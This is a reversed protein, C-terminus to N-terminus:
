KGPMGFLVDGEVDSIDSQIIVDGAGGIIRNMDQHRRTLAVLDYQPLLLSNAHYSEQDEAVSITKSALLAHTVGEAFFQVVSVCLVCLFGSFPECGAGKMGKYNDKKDERHERHRQTEIGLSQLSVGGVRAAGM